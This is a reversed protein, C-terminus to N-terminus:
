GTGSYEQESLAGGTQLEKESMWSTGEPFRAVGTRPGNGLAQRFGAFIEECGRATFELLLGPQMRGPREKRQAGNALLGALDHVCPGPFTVGVRGPDGAIGHFRFPGPPRAVPEGKRFDVPAGPEGGLLSPVFDIWSLCFEDVPELNGL